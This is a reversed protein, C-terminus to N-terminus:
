ARFREIRRELRRLLVEHGGTIPAAARLMPPIAASHAAISGRTEM